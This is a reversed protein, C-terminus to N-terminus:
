CFCSLPPLCSKNQSMTEFMERWEDIWGDIRAQDGTGSCSAITMPTYLPFFIGAAHSVLFLLSPFAKGQRGKEKRRKNRRSELRQSPITWV